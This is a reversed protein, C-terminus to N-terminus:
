VYKAALALIEEQTAGEGVEGAVRGGSMVIIRNCVGLLEPMEGSVMVVGKGKQALSHILTYIEYKAGVDIGRTPEDLLLVTPETLLWRGFIVKQQNGGSLTSIRTRWDPTKIRLTGITDVTAKVARKKSLLPGRMYKKLSSIVTNDCIDLIGFIGGARREETVLAFGNKIADRPTKNRIEKGDLFISGRELTNLGFISELLETRGAGDLGAVGLVEGRRLTFSADSLNKYLATLGEVRLLEEGAGRYKEPFRGDLARGVMLRILEDTTLEDAPRTDIWRGDRM